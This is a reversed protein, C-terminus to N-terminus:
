ELGKALTGHIQIFNKKQRNQCKLRRNLIWDSKINDSELLKEIHRNAKKAATILETVCRKNTTM